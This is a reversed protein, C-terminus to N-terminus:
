RVRARCSARHAPLVVARPYVACEVRAHEILTRADATLGSAACGIHRSVEFVKEISDAELLSSTVRKEVALVVGEKTQIGVATSGLQRHPGAGRVANRRVSVCGGRARALRSLRM